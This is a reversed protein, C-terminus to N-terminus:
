EEWGSLLKESLHHDADKVIRTRQYKKVDNGYLHILYDYFNTMRETRNLGQLNAACSKDLFLNFRSKDKEGIVYIIHKFKYRYVVQDLPTSLYHHDINELGYKYKNYNECYKSDPMYQAPRTGDLYLYSSPSIPVYTMTIQKKALDDDISTLAAYRQVFQGGASFGLITIKKLHPFVASHSIKEILKDLVSFSSIKEKVKKADDGNDWGEFSWYLVPDKLPYKKADAETLFQPCIVAIRNAHQRKSIASEVEHCMKSADKLIGHIAIIAEDVNEDRHNVDLRSVYPVCYSSAEHKFCFTKDGVQAAISIDLHFLYYLALKIVIFTNM